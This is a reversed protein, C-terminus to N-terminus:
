AVLDDKLFPVSALKPKAARWYCLLLRPSNRDDQKVM